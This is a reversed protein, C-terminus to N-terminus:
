DTTSDIKAFHTIFLMSDNQHYTVTIRQHQPDFSRAVQVPQEKYPFEIHLTGNEFEWEGITTQGQMIEKVNHNPRFILVQFDEDEVSHKHVINTDDEVVEYRGWDTLHWKGILQQEDVRPTSKCGSLGYIMGWLVLVFVIENKNLFSMM